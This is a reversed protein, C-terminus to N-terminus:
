QRKSEAHEWEATEAKTKAEAVSRRNALWRNFKDLVPM